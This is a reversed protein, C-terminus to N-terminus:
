LPALRLLPSVHIRGREVKSTSEESAAVAGLPDEAEALNKVCVCPRQKKAAGRILSKFTVAKGQPTCYTASLCTSGCHGKLASLERSM